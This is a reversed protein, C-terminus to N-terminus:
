RRDAEQLKLAIRSATAMRFLGVGARFVIAAPISLAAAEIIARSLALMLVYGILGLGILILVIALVERFVIM